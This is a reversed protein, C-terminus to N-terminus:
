EKFKKSIRQTRQSSGSNRPGTPGKVNTSVEPRSIVLEPLFGIQVPVVPVEREPPIKFKSLLHALAHVECFTCASQM